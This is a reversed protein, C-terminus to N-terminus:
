FRLFTNLIIFISEYLKHFFDFLSRIELLIIIGFCLIYFTNLKNDQSWFHHEKPRKTDDFHLQYKNIKGKFNVKNLIQRLIYLLFNNQGIM